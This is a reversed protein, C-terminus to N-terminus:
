KQEEDSIRRCFFDLQGKYHLTIKRTGDNVWEVYEDPSDKPNFVEYVLGNYTLSFYPRFGNAIEGDKPGGVFFYQYFICDSFGELPMHEM